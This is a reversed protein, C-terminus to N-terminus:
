CDDFVHDGKPGGDWEGGVYLFIFFGLLIM